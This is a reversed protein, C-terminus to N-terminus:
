VGHGYRSWIKFSTEVMVEDNQIPQKVVTDTIFM